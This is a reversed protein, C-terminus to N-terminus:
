ASWRRHSCMCPSYMPVTRLVIFSSFYPEWFDNEDVTDTCLFSAFIYIYIRKYAEYVLMAEKTTSEGNPFKNSVTVMAIFVM